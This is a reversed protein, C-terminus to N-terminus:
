KPVWGQPNKARMPPPCNCLGNSFYCIIFSYILSQGGCFFSVIFYYVGEWPHIYIFFLIFSMKTM